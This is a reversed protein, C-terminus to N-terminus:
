SKKEYVRISKIEEIMIGIKENVNGEGIKNNRLKKKFQKKREM